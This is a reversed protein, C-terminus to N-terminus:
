YENQSVHVDLDMIFGVVSGGSFAACALVFSFIGSTTTKLNRRKEQDAVIRTPQEDNECPTKDTGNKSNIRTATLDGVGYDSKSGRKKRQKAKQTKRQKEGSM